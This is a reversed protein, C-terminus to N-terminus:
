RYEEPVGAIDSYGSGILVFWCAWRGEGQSASQIHMPWETDADEIIVDMEQDASALLAMLEKVKM